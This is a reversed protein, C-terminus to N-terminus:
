SFSDSRPTRCTRADWVRLTHTGASLTVDKAPRDAFAQWGSSPVSLSGALDLGDLSLRITKGSLASAVRPVIHFKRTTAVQLSYELWEGPHTWGVNCGGGNPDSTTESDVPGTGCGGEHASDSDHFATYDVAKIRYPVSLTLEQRVVGLSEDVRADDRPPDACSGLLAGYTALWLLTRWGRRQRGTSGLRGVVSLQSFINTTRMRFRGQGCWCSATRALATGLLLWLHRVSVTVRGNAGVM